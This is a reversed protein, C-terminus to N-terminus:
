YTFEGRPVPSRTGMAMKLRRRRAEWSRGDRGHSDCISPWWGYGRLTSALVGDLRGTSSLVWHYVSLSLLFSTPDLDTPFPPALVRSRRRRCATPPPRKEREKEEWIGGIEGGGEAEERQSAGARREERAPRWEEGGASRCELM